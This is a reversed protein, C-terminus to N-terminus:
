EQAKEINPDNSIESDQKINSNTKSLQPNKKIKTPLDFREFLILCHLNGGAKKGSRLSESQFEKIGQEPKRINYYYPNQNNIDMVIESWRKVHFMPYAKSIEGIIIWCEGDEKKEDSSKEAKENEEAELSKKEEEMGGDKETNDADKDSQTKEIDKVEENQPSSTTQIQALSDYAQWPKNPTIEFGIPCMYHNCSHYIFAKRPNQLDELLFDRADDPSTYHTKGKGHLKFFISAKGKLGFHHRLVNFWSILTQNGTFKGFRVDHYPPHIGLISLAHEVSIPTLSGNGLTSYLYNFCSVLSSIGCSKPYQPRSLCFWRATDLHKRMSMQEKTITLNMPIPYTIPEESLSDGSKSESETKKDDKTSSIEKSKSKKSKEESSIENEKEEEEEKIRKLGKKGKRKKGKKQKQHKKKFLHTFDMISGEKEEEDSLKVDNEKNKPSAEYCRSMLSALYSKASEKNAQDFNLIDDGKSEM